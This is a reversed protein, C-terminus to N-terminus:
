SGKRLLVIQTQTVLAALKGDGRTIRTQWVTTSRGRHLPTCEAKATDGVPIGAFFNTKSEITATSAGEPLNAVAATGGLNDALAMLAGGHLVGNRNSLAETVPLEATVRDLTVLTIKMGLLNAFPPQEDANMMFNRPRPPTNMRDESAM